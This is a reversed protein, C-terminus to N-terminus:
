HGATGGGGTGAGGRPASGAMSGELAEALTNAIAFMHDYGEYALDHSTSYDKAAYATVQQLLQQDHQRLAAIVTDAAVKGGSVAPLVAGLQRPFEDLTTRARAQAEDDADAVAISFTVVANIHAAWIRSFEKGTKTGLAGQMAAIIEQTNENLAGAAAEAAANGSVVARTADFALEVHEGLLRGLASRLEAPASDFGAPLEGSGPSVAAGSIAKGTGFMAAYATREGAFAEAYDGAAYSDTVDLLHQIHAGVDDAVASSTLEGETVGSIFEGYKASYADLDAKAADAAADDEDALARSYATLSEVHETWLASFKAASEEGYVSSVAGSLEETNRQLAGDAAEVFDPEGDVSGRMLRVMLIAHHGLLKEMLLRVDRPTAAAAVTDGHGEMPSSSPSSKSAGSTSPSPSSSGQDTDSGSSCAATVLALALVLAARRPGHSRDIM